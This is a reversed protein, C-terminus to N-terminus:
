RIFTFKAMASTGSGFPWLLSGNSPRATARVRVYYDRNAELIRTDFLSLGKLSTMWTRVKAESDAQEQEDMRGDVVRTLSYRRLLNNYEVTATVTSTGITRDVWGPVDLRLEVDYTFTTKLGSQIAARVDETFGSALDFTVYVRDERVIPIVRFGTGTQAFAPSVTVFLTFLFFSIRAAPGAFAPCWSTPRQSSHAMGDRM